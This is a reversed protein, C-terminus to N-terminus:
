TTGKYTTVTVYYTGVVVPTNDLALAQGLNPKNGLPYPYSPIGSWYCPYPQQQLYCIGCLQNNDNIDFAKSNNANGNLDIVSSSLVVAHYPGVSVPEWGAVYNQNNIATANFPIQGFVQDTPPVYGGLYSPPATGVTIPVTDSDNIDVANGSITFLTLGIGNNLWIAAKGNIGGTGGSIDGNNNVKVGLFNAATFTLTQSRACMCVFSVFLCILAAVITRLGFQRSM